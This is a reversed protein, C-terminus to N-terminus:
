VPRLVMTYSLPDDGFLKRDVHQVAYTKGGDVVRTKETPEFGLSAAAATMRLERHAARAEDAEGRMRDVDGEHRTIQLVKSKFVAKVAIFGPEAGTYRKEIGGSVGDALVKVTRGTRAIARAESQQRPTSPM